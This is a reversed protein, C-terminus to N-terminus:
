RQLPQTTMVRLAANIAALLLLSPGTAAAPLAEPVASLVAGAAATAVAVWLTRSRKPHKANM